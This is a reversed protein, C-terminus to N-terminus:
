GGLLDDLVECTEEATGALRSLPSMGQMRRKAKVKEKSRAQRKEQSRKSM